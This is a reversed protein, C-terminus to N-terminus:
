CKDGDQFIHNLQFQANPGQFILKVTYSKVLGDYWILTISGFAGFNWLMWFLNLIPAISQMPRKDEMFDKPIIFLGNYNSGSFRLVSEGTFGDKALQDFKRAITGLNMEM